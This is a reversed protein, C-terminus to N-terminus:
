RRSRQSALRRRALRLQWRSWRDVALLAVVFVLYAGAAASFIGYRALEFGAFAAVVLPGFVLRSFMEWRFVM